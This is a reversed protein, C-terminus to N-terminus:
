LKEFTKQSFNLDESIHRRTWQYINVSTDSFLATEENLTTWSYCTRGFRWCFNVLGWSMILLVFQVNLYEAKLINRRSNCEFKDEAFQVWFGIHKWSYYALVDKIKLRSSCGVREISNITWFVSMSLYFNHPLRTEKEEGKGNILEGRMEKREGEKGTSPLWDM